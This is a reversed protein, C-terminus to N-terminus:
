PQRLRWIGILLSSKLHNPNLSIRSALKRKVDLCLAMIASVELTSLYYQNVSPAHMLISRSLASQQSLGQDRYFIALLCFLLADVIAGVTYDAIELASTVPQWTSTLLVSLSMRYLNPLSQDCVLANYSAPQHKHTYRLFDHQPSQVFCQDAYSDIADSHLNVAEIFLRSKVTPLLKHTNNAQLVLYLNSKPEELTKLLANACQTTMLECSEIFIIQNRSLTPAKSIREIASRLYDIKITPIAADSDPRITILDPHEDELILQCHRCSRCSPDSSHACLLRRVIMKAMELGGMDESLPLLYGSPWSLDTIRQNVIDYLSTLWPFVSM